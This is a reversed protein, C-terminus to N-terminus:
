RLARPMKALCRTLAEELAFHRKKAKTYWWLETPPAKGEGEESYLAFWVQHHPIFSLVCGLTLILLSMYLFATEPAYKMQLGTAM